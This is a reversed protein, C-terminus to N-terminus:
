NEANTQFYLIVRMIGGLHLLDHGKKKVGVTVHFCDLPTAAPPALM